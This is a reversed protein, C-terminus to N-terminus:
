IYKKLRDYTTEKKSIDFEDLLINEIKNLGSKDEKLLNDTNKENSYNFNLNVKRLINYFDKKCEIGYINLDSNMSNEEFEKANREKYQRLYKKTEELKYNLSLKDCSTSKWKIEGLEVQFREGHSSDPKLYWVFSPIKNVDIEKLYITREKKNLNKRIEKNLNDEIINELRNDLGIKNLHVLPYTNKKNNKIIYAIEHLYITKNDITTYVTGNSSINWNRDYKKLNDCIDKDLVIPVIINKYKAKVISYNKNNYKVNTIDTLKVM